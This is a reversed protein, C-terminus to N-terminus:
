SKLDDLLTRKPKGELSRYITINELVRMVYNRTEAYPILEVWDLIDVEGRRPDGFTKLWREVAAQGANYAAITLIYSSDFNNLLSSLHASGLHLNHKPDYLKREHHAIGLCKATRAATNPMLQLLGKAGASSQATPNFRSEQYAVAMVFAKEPVSQGKQPISCVPYAKRLTIPERFGAKKAAWVVDYASLDHALHVALERDSKTKAQDAIHLLFKSLEHSTESGLGKLIYAAKVLESQYFKAKTADTTGPAVALKPYPNERLKAAALQGYYTSKYKSARRYWKEAQDIQGQKEFVRGIWYAGRTKSIASEVNTYLSEFHRKAENPKHLFQLSLWGALWEANAFDEIGPELKHKQILQYAKQYDGTAILERAIYNQLTWWKKAHQPHIPTQIIIQAAKQFEGKVKFANAIEYLIGEDNRQEASLVGTDQQIETRGQLFAIRVKAIKQVNNPLYPFLSKAAESDGKWLLFQLRALHDKGQLLPAFCTLFKKEESKTLEMKHWADAVVQTAQSRKKNALLANGYAIVGAPTQPSHAKFWALIQPASAKKTIVEEAKRCLKEHHPWHPHKNLFTILENATFQEPKRIIGLWYVLKEATPCGATNGKKQENLQSLLAAKCARLEQAPSLAQLSSTVCMGISFAKYLKKFFPITM